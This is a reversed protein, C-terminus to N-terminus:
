FPMSDQWFVYQDTGNDGLKHDVHWKLNFKKGPYHIDFKKLEKDMERPNLALLLDKVIRGMAKHEWCTLVVVDVDKATYEKYIKVLKKVIGEIDNTKCDCQIPVPIKKALPIITQLARLQACGAFYSTFAELSCLDPPHFTDPITLIKSKPKPAIIFTPVKDFPMQRALNLSRLYGEPSLNPNSEDEPKEGHRIFVFSVVM